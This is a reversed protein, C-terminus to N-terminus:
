ECTLATKVMEAVHSHNRSVRRAILYYLKLHLNSHLLSSLQQQLMCKPADTFDITTGHELRDYHEM